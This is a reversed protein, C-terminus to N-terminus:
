CLRRQFPQATSRSRQPTPQSSRPETRVPHSSGPHSRGGGRRVKAVATPLVRAGIALADMFCTHNVTMVRAGGRRRLYGYGCWGMFGCRDGCRTGPPYEEWLWWYGFAWLFVRACWRLPTFLLLTCASMAEEGDGEETPHVATSPDPSPSPSPTGAPPAIPATTSDTAPPLAAAHLSGARRRTAHPRRLCCCSLASVWVVVFLGTLLIVIVRLLPLGTFGVAVM